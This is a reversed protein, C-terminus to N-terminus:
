IEDEDEEEEEDSFYDFSKGETWRNITEKFCEYTMKKPARFQKKDGTDINSVEVVLMNSEVHADPDNLEKIKKDLQGISVKAYQRTGAMCLKKHEIPQQIRQRLSQSQNMGPKKVVSKSRVVHVTAGDVLGLEGLTNDTRCEECTDHDPGLPLSVTGDSAVELYVLGPKAPYHGQESREKSKIQKALLDEMVVKTYLAKGRYALIQNQAPVETEQQIDRMLDYLLYEALAQIDCKRGTSTQIKILM